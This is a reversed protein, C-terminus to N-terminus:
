RVRVSKWVPSCLEVPWNVNEAHEQKCTISVLKAEFRLSQRDGHQCLWSYFIVGNNCAASWLISVKGCFLLLSCLKMCVSFTSNKNVHHEQANRTNKRYSVTMYFFLSFLIELVLCTFHFTHWVKSQVMIENFSEIHDIRTSLNQLNNSTNLYSVYVVCVTAYTM